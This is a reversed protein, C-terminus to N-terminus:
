TPSRVKLTTNAQKAESLLALNEDEEVLDDGDGFVDGEVPVNTLEEDVREGGKSIGVEFKKETSIDQEVEAEATDEHGVGSRCNRERCHLIYLMIKLFIKQVVPICASDDLRSIHSLSIFSLYCLYPFFLFSRFCIWPIFSPIFLLFVLFSSTLFYVTNLRVLILYIHLISDPFKTQDCMLSSLSVQMRLTLLAEQINKAGDHKRFDFCQFHLHRVQLMINHVHWKSNNVVRNIRTTVLM